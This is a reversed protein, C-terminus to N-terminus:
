KNCTTLGGTISVRLRRSGPEVCVERNVLLLERFWLGLTTEDGVAVRVIEVEGGTAAIDGRQVGEEGEPWTVVEELDEILCQPGQNIQVIVGHILHLEVKLKRRSGEWM